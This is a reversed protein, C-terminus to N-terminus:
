RRGGGKDNAKDNAKDNGRDNGKGKGKDQGKDQGKDHGKDHGKELMSGSSQGEDERLLEESLSSLGMSTQDNERSLSSLGPADLSNDAAEQEATLERASEAAGVAVVSGYASSGEAAGGGRLMFDQAGTDQMASEGVVSGGSLTLGSAGDSMTDGNGLGRSDANAGLGANSDGSREAGSAGAAVTTGFSAAAANSASLLQLLRTEFEDPTMAESLKGRDAIRVAATEESVVVVIADCEQSLGLAARHRSGLQKSPMDSPDALPLQVGAAEVIKGRVVCALDHLASGPFFITQLLQSSLEANLRTGGEVLGGLRSQREIVILAGFRARSLYRVADSIEDAIFRVDKRSGRLVSTEGLRVLGRRLEPQFIVILGIAVLALLKDYLLTLRDFGGDSGLFRSLVAIVGVLVLLGKLAGAARTGQVFRVILYVVIWILLLEVFVEWPSYTAVRARLGEYWLSARAFLEM